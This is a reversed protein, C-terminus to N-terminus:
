YLRQACAVRSIQIYDSLKRVVFFLLQFYNLCNLLFSNAAIILM